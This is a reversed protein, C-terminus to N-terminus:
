FSLLLSSQKTKRASALSSIAALCTCQVSYAYLVPCTLLPVVPVAAIPGLASLLRAPLRRSPRSLPCLGSWGSHGGPTKRCSLPSIFFLEFFNLLCVFDFLLIYTQKHATCYEYPTMNVFYEEFSNYM